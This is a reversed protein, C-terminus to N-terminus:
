RGFDSDLNRKLFSLRQAHLREMLVRPAKDTVAWARIIIEPKPSRKEFESILKHLIDPTIGDKTIQGIIELSDQEWADLLAAKYTDINKFHHYFSGKTVGLAATMRDITVASAGEEGLIQLGTELWSTKTKRM